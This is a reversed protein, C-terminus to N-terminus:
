RLRAAAIQALGHCGQEILDLVHEFGDPGGYYPDPIEVEGPLLSIKHRLAAPCRKLLEKLHGRDMAVLLDFREFDDPRLARARQDCLEYGRRRAHDQSRDDPAEGAHWGQVGASDILVRDALGMSALQHRLVGEATPSRCINGTCIFLISLDPKAPM